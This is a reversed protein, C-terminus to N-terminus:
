NGTKVIAFYVTVVNVKTRNKGRIPTILLQSDRQRNYLRTLKLNDEPNIKYFNVKTNIVTSNTYKNIDNYTIVNM